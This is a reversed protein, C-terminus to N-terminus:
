IPWTKVAIKSLRKQRDTLNNINWEKYQSLDENIKLISKEYIKLKEEFLENGIGSNDNASLLTQNGLRNKYMKHEAENFNPYGNKSISKSMIHELTLQISDKSAVMEPNPIGTMKENLARLLYRALKANGISYTSFAEEFQENSVILKSLEVKLDDLKNVQSSSVKNAAVDIADFTAGSRVSLAVLIRVTFSVIFKFCKIQESKSMKYAISLLLPQIASIDLLNLTAINDRFSDPYGKWKENEPNSIAVFCKSLEELDHLFRYAKDANTVKKETKEYITERTVGKGDQCILALRLFDITLDEETNLSELTGKINGWMMQCQGLNESSVSFICNKVLDAQTTGLGRDNLTEFMKYADAGDDAQFMVVIASTRLFAAWRIVAQRHNAEPLGEVISLIKERAARYSNKIKKHSQKSPEISRDKDIIYSKFFNNDIDNLTLKPLKRDQQYDFEVLYDNAISAAAEAEKISELYDRAAAMFITTTALRQQGDIVQMEHTM